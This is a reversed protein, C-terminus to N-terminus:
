RRAPATPLAPASPESAGAPEPYPDSRPTGAAYEYRDALALAIERRHPDDTRLALARLESAHSLLQAKSREPELLGQEISEIVVREHDSLEPLPHLPPAPRTEAARGYRDAIPRLQELLYETTIKGDIRDKLHGNLRDSAAPHRLASRTFDRLTASDFTTGEPLTQDDQTAATTM